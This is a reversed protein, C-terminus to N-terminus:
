GCDKGGSRERSTRDEAVSCSEGQKAGQEREYDGELRQKTDIFRIKWLAKNTTGQNGEGSIFGMM